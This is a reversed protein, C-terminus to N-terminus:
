GATRVLQYGEGRIARIAVDALGADMLKKRLRSVHIDIGRDAGDFPVGRAELSLRNRTVVTGVHTALAWALDHEATTAGIDRGEVLVVRRSRNVVLSGIAVVEEDERETPEASDKPSRRLLARIHALLVRPSCPKTVYDDVGSELGAVVDIEGRVATLMLIPVASHRRVRQCVELGNLGPLMQDLVVLDPEASLIHAAAQAGDALLVVDFHQERLYDRLMAGLEPDDEVIVIRRVM